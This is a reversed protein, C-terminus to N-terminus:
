SIVHHHPHHSRSNRSVLTTPIFAIFDLMRQANWNYKAVEKASRAIAQKLNLTIRQNADRATLFNLITPAPKPNLQAAASSSRLSPPRPHDLARQVPVRPGARGARRGGGVGFVGFVAKDTVERAAHQTLRCVTKETQSISTSSLCGFETLSPPCRGLAKRCNTSQPRTQHGRDMGAYTQAVGELGM